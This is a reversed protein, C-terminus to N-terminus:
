NKLLRRGDAHALRPAAKTSVSTSARRARDAEAPDFKHELVDPPRQPESLCVNQGREVCSDTVVAAPEATVSALAVASLSLLAAPSRTNM